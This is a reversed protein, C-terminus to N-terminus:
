VKCVVVTMDDDQENAGRFKTADEVIADRLADAPLDKQKTIVLSLRELGYVEGEPNRTEYIGDSHLVFVDGPMFPFRRQPIDVPLRVGLPPAYLDITEISGDARALIVPPHGASSLTVERTAHDLLVVSVTVFM